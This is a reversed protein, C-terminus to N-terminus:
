NGKIQIDTIKSTSDLLAYDGTVQGIPIRGIGLLKDEVDINFKNAWEIFEPSFLETDPEDFTVIFEASYYHLNVYSDYTPDLGDHFLDLLNKGVETYALYARGSKMVSTALMYDDNDLPQRNIADKNWLLEISKASRYPRRELAHISFNLQRVANKFEADMHNMLGSGTWTGNLKEFNM